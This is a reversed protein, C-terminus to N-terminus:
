RSFVHRALRPLHHIQNAWDAPSSASWVLVLADVVEGLAAAQSVLLVGPSQKGERLFRAFHVPMTSVDHSVLIRGLRAAVDLVDPDHIGELDAEAASLFDIAAERLSTGSVIAQNLDADALFRISM